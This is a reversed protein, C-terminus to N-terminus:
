LRSCWSDDNSLPKHFFRMLFSEDSGASLERVRTPGGEDRHHGDLGSRPGRGVSACAAVNMMKVREKQM